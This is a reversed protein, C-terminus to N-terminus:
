NCHLSLMGNTYMKRVKRYKELHRNYCKESKEFDVGNCFKSKVSIFSAEAKEKLEKSILLFSKGCDAPSIIWKQLWRLQRFPDENKGLSLTVNEFADSFSAKSDITKILHSFITKQTQYFKDLGYSGVLCAKRFKPDNDGILKITLHLLNMSIAEVDHSSSFGQHQDQFWNNLAIHAFGEWEFPAEVEIALTLHLSFDFEEEPKENELITCAEHPFGRPIYLIDGERLLFQNCENLIGDAEDLSYVPEYLRPLIISSVPFVKWKKAGMLQCVFVCHDDYHRTLGQSNPPTLYMNAGASPQGFLYALGDVIAAINELRFELGRLAITNGKKFAEECKLIDDTYLVQSDKFFHGEGSLHQTKLVRIDQQYIMPSGLHGRVENLFNSIDREGSGIPPCSILNKLIASFDSPANNFNLCQRCLNLIANRGNLAKPSGKMLFPSDEWYNLIFDEFGFQGGDFISSKIVDLPFIPTSRDANISIRFVSEALSDTRINSPLFLKQLNSEVGNLIQSRITKWINKLYAWFPQILEIPISKLQGIPCANIFAIAADILLVFLEDEKFGIRYLIESGNEEKYIAVELQESSKSVYHQEFCFM